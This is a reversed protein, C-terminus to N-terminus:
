IAVRKSKRKISVDDDEGEKQTFEFGKIFFHEVLQIVSLEEMEVSLGKQAVCGM